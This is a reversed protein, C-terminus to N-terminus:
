GGARGRCPCRRPKRDSKRHTAEGTRSSTLTVDAAESSKEQPRGAGVSEVGILAMAAEGEKSSVGDGKGM